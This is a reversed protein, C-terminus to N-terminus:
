IKNERVGTSMLLMETKGYIKARVLTFGNKKIKFQFTWDNNNKSIEFKINTNQPEDQELRKFLQHM